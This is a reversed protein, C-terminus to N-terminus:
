RAAALTDAMGAHEELVPLAVKCLNQVGAHEGHNLYTKFL